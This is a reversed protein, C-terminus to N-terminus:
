RTPKFGQYIIQLDKQSADWDDPSTYWSLSYAQKGPTTIFGRKVAHQPNGSETTYTFEWDAAKGHYNLGALSVRKYNRYKTGRREREQAAWDAVPDAKPQESHDIILLRNNKTVYVESGQPRVDAGNPVPVSYGDGKYLYWGKPVGAAPKSTAPAPSSPKATTPAPAAAAPASSAAPKEPASAVPAGGAKRGDDGAQNSEDGFARPVLVVLVLLVAVLLGVAIVTQRRTLTTGFVTVGRGGSSPARVTMPQWAPRSPQGFGPAGSVPAGSVPDAAVATVDAAPKLIRTRNAAEDSAESAAKGAPKSTTGPSGTALAGAKAATAKRGDAASAEAKPTDNEPETPLPTVPEPADLKPAEPTTTSEVTSKPEPDATAADPKRDAETDAASRV